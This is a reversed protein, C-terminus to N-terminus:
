GRAGWLPTTGAVNDVFDIARVIDCGGKIALLAADYAAQDPGPVFQRVGPGFRDIVKCVVILGNILTSLGAVRAM